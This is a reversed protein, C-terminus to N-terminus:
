SWTPGMRDQRALAGTVAAVKWGKIPSDIIPIKIHSRFFEIDPETLSSIRREEPPAGPGEGGLRPKGEPQVSCVVAGEATGVNFDDHYGTIEGPEGRESAKRAM